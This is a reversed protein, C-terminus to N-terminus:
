RDQHNQSFMVLFLMFFGVTIAIDAVNFIGTRVPGIGLNIFDAVSGGYIIRDILNSLGGSIILAIASVMFSSSTKTLFAYALACLLLIAVGITFIGKRWKDPLFSGMSLFAGNNYVLQLRITNYFYSFSKSEPLVSKAISKTTQDCGVCSVLIIFIIISRRVFSM